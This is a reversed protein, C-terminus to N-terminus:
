SPRVGMQQLVRALEIRGRNIRSKVTGEPVALVQQIESYELQQLDRLIVAERLEPSLRKLASQVQGSLEGLLAQEDPRRGASEKNEVVPMKDDLSDTIRDRKTRRYHDILLNRTVSTMWTAFGGHASRYSGLTRYVRLFVDQSLDESETRNGTFRYCINFIRRTHRRVLEEWASGDGQLCQQVLQADQELTDDAELGAAICPTDALRSRERFGDPLGDRGAM